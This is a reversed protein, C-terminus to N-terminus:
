GQLHLYWRQHQGCVYVIGEAAGQRVAQHSVRRMPYAQRAIVTIMNLRDRLTALEQQAQLMEGQQLMQGQLLPNPQPSPPVLALQRNLEDIKQGQQWVLGGTFGLGLLCVAFAAALALQSWSRPAAATAAPMMPTPVPTAPATPFTEVAESRAAAAAPSANAAGRVRNLIQDKLSASPTEPELEYPLLGLLETYERVLEADAGEGGQVLRPESGTAMAQSLAQEIAREERDM